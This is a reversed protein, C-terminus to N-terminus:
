LFYFCFAIFFGQFLSFLNMGFQGLGAWCPGARTRGRRRVPPSRRDAATEKGRASETERGRGLPASNDAGTAQECARGREIEAERARKTLAIFRKGGRAREGESCRPVVRNTGGEGRVTTSWHARVGLDGVV